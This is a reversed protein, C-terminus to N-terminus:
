RLVLSLQVKVQKAEADSTPQAVTRAIRSADAGAATLAAEIALARQNALAALADPPLLQAERLRRLLTQYFERTDTVQPAGSAFNRVRDVVSPTPQNAARAKEEAEARV